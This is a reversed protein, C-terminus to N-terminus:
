LIHAEALAEFIQWLNLLSFIFSRM